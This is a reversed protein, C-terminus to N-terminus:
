GHGLADHFKKRYTPSLTLTTGDLLLVRYEGYFWSQVERIRNLNVITSRHIRLFQKPDLRGELWTLSERVLHSEKGWHVRVYKGEAELWDIQEVKLFRARGDEKLVIRTLYKTGHRIEQLLEAVHAYLDASNEKGIQAKAHNLAKQFREENFPKLLYDLAYVEFAQLAYEDFATVFIIHPLKDVRIEKLAQFGDMEPMRVDLFILQPQHQRVVEVASRGDSCEAAIVIEPDSRLMRRIRERALPEDDIIVVRIPEM